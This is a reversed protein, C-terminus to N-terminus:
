PIRAGHPDLCLVRGDPERVRRFDERVGLPQVLAVAGLPRDILPLLLHGLRTGLHEIRDCVVHRPEIGEGVLLQGLLHLYGVHPLLGLGEGAGRALEIPGGLLVLLRQVVGHRLCRCGGVKSGVFSRRSVAVVQRERVGVRHRGGLPLHPGQRPLRRGRRLVRRGRHLPLRRSHPRPPLLPQRRHRPLHLKGLHHGLARAAHQRELLAGQAVGLRLPLQRPPELPPIVLRNSGLPLGQPQRVSGRGGVPPRGVRPPDRHADPRGSLM